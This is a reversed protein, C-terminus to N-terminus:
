RSKENMWEVKYPNALIIGLWLLAPWFQYALIELNEFFSYAILIFCLCVGIRARSEKFSRYTIYLCTLILPVALSFFGVIGKVFLLGYWSHHSGIPMYEVMKPGREVVGHGWLPAESKWREIALEALAGRVRTSGPRSDRVQEYRGFFWDVIPEALLFIIPLMIGFGVWLWSRTIFKLSLLLIPLLLFLAWGARSQCFLCMVVAGSLGARRWFQDKEQLCLVFYCSAILGAAPAWPGTYQWRPLGTEPNLGFWRIQFVEMPGGIFKLPSFYLDGNLGILYWLLGIFTFPIASASAICCGRSIYKPRIIVLAGLLPFLALLAWGKAWGISSKITSGIGLQFNVHAVVLAVLMVLMSLVWLWILPSVGGLGFGRPTVKPYAIARLIVIALILWGIISGVVYLGGMVYIPYSYALAWYVLCEEARAGDLSFSAM